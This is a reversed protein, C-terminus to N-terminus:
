VCQSITYELRKRVLVCQIHKAKVLVVDSFVGDARLSVSAATAGAGDPARHAGRRGTPVRELVFQPM